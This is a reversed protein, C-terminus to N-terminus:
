SKRKLFNIDKYDTFVEIFDKFLKGIGYLLFVRVKVYLSVVM